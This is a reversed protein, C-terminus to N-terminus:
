EPLRKKAFDRWEEYESTLLTELLIEKYSWKKLFDIDERNKFFLKIYDSWTKYYFGDYDKKSVYKLRTESVDKLRTESVDKLRMDRRFMYYGNRTFYLYKLYLSDLEFLSFSFDVRPNKTVEFLKNFINM